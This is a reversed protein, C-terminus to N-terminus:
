AKTKYPLYQLVSAWRVGLSEFVSFSLENFPLCLTVPFSFEFRSYPSFKYMLTEEVKICLLYLKKYYCKSPDKIITEIEVKKWYHSWNNYDSINQRMTSSIQKMTIGNWFFFLVFSIM